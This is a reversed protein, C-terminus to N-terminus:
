EDHLSSLHTDRHRRSELFHELILHAALRDIRKKRQQHNLGAERLLRKAEATTYREDQFVCPVETFRAMWMQFDRVERSKQSETGDGHIPLGIVIGQIQQRTLLESLFKEDLRENRRSYTDLAHGM